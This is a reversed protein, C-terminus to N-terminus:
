ASAEGKRVSAHPIAITILLIIASWSPVVNASGSNLSVFNPAIRRAITEMGEDHAPMATRLVADSREGIRRMWASL